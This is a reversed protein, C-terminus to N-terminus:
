DEGSLFLHDRHWSIYKIHEPSLRVKLSVTCGLAQRASASLSPSVLIGGQDDFAILGRDFLADLNPSLLLGNFVDLREANDCIRWPKIHSARLVEICDCATISCQGWKSVLSQRFLGQGVRALVLQRKETNSLSRDAAIAAEEEQLLFDTIEPTIWYKRTVGFAGTRSPNLGMESCFELYRSELTGDALPPAGYLSNLAANTVRGDRNPNDAHTALKNDIYGIFRSPAFALGSDCLYPLFCTGRKILAVYEEADAGAGERGLELEALNQEIHEMTSVVNM